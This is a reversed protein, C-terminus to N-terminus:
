TARVMAFQPQMYIVSTARVALAGRRTRRARGAPAPDRIWESWSGAYLRAGPLGALELALLNHCATVGSGCMAIVDAPSRAPRAAALWRRATRGAAPLARRREPQRQVSSQGRGARPRRGPRAARRQRRLAGARACGGAAPAPDELAAILEATRSCPRRTSERPAFRGRAPAPQPPPEGPSSRAARPSGPRSAATSCRSEPSAGALAAAVVGAGRVVGNAEDYAISRRTTASASRASGLAALADPAPLPHRGSDPTVPASLDRNLDAYRAGPIHAALYAQRGAGPAALDFRCDLVAIRRRRRDADRLSPSTSSPASLGDHELKDRHRQSRM